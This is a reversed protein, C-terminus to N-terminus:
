RPLTVADAVQKRTRPLRAAATGRRLAGARLARSIAAGTDFLLGREGAQRQHCKKAGTVCEGRHSRTEQRRDPGQPRIAAHRLCARSATSFTTVALPRPLWCPSGGSCPRRASRHIRYRPNAPDSMMVDSRHAAVPSRFLATM